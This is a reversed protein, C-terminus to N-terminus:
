SPHTVQGNSSICGGNDLVRCREVKDCALHLYSVQLIMHVLTRLILLHCTYSIM